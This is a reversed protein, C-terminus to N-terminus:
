NAGIGAGVVSAQSSTAPTTQVTGDNEPSAGSPEATSQFNVSGPVVINLCWVDLQILGVGNTAARAYDIHSVTVSPYTAEPTVATYFNTKDAAVTQASALLAARNEVSGGASFRLRFEFPITVKDYSAFAGQEVPYDAVAYEQKFSMNVVNDAVVVPAGNLFLGWQSPSAGPLQAMDSTLLIADLGVPPAYSALPPVGPLNPVSM